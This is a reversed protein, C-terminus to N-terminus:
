ADREEQKKRELIELITPKDKHSQKKSAIAWLGALSLLVTVANTALVVWMLGLSDGEPRLWLLVIGSFVLFTLALKCAARCLVEMMGAMEM